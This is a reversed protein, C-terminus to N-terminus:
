AGRHTVRGLADHWGALLREREGGDMSPEYRV